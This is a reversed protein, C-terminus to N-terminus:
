LDATITDTCRLFATALGVAAADLEAQAQTSQKHKYRNLPDRVRIGDTHSASADSLIFQLLAFCISTPGKCCERQWKSEDGIYPALPTDDARLQTTPHFDNANCIM